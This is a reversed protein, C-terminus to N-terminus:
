PGVRSPKVAAPTPLQEQVRHSTTREHPSGGRRLKTRLTESAQGGQRHSRAAPKLKPPGSTAMADLRRVGASGTGQPGAWGAASVAGGPATLVAM